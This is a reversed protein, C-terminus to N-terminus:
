VSGEVFCNILIKKVKDSMQLKFVKNRSYGVRRWKLRIKYQGTKGMAAPYESSWKHGEDNSWSLTTMPNTVGDSDSTDTSSGGDLGVGTEADIILKTIFVNNMEDKDYVCPAIVFSVIPNGNDSYINDAMIYLNQTQWDGVIHYGAFRAYCNSVHRNVMNPQSVQYSSREHWMKTMMDYVFTANSTPFTLVYFVHGAESYCYGFADYLYLQSMRYNIADTSVPIPQYGSLQVVGAFEPGNDGRTSALMFLSGVGRAVSFPAPTGFDLLAGQVNAFAQGLATATGTNFFIQTTYEKIMYAQENLSYPVQINDPATSAVAITLGGWSSGSFLDSVCANMTGNTVIFYGDQYTAMRPNSVFATPGQNNAGTFKDSRLMTNSLSNYLYGYVGDVFLIQNGGVGASAVGNDVISMRGTYTAFSYLLSSVNGNTDVAYLNNGSVVYLLGNFVHFARAPSAGVASFLSTGPCGVLTIKSKAFPSNSVEPFFNVCRTADVNQSRGQYSPGLFPIEM